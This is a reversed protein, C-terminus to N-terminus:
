RNFANVSQIKGRTNQQRNYKKFGGDDSQADIYASGGAAVAESIGGILDQKAQARAADARLKRQASMDLLTETKGLEFEEQRIKGEAELGQLRSAEGATAMKLQQEQSAIDAASAQLNTSQQQALTQALAAIGSGGAAQQLGGMVNALGQQQQQAQFQAAQQNVTVDEYVNQMNAYPNTFTMSEYAQKRQALEQQAAKQERRRKGGGFMSGVAKIVGPAASIAAVALPALAKQMEPNGFLFEILIEKM